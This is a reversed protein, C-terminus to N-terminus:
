PKSEKCQPSEKASLGGGLAKGVLEKLGGEVKRGSIKPPRSGWPRGTTPKKAGNVTRTRQVAGRKVRPVMEESFTDKKVGSDKSFM